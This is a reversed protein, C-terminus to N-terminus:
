NQILLQGQIKGLERLDPEIEDTVEPEIKDTVEPENSLTEKKDHGEQGKPTDPVDTRLTLDPKAFTETSSREPDNPTIEM